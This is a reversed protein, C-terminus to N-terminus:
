IERITCCNGFQEPSLRFDSENRLTLKMLSVTFFVVVVNGNQNLFGDGVVCM